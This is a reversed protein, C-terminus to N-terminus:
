VVSSYNDVQFGNETMTKTSISYKGINGGKQNQSAYHVFEASSMIWTKNVSADYFVFYFNNCLKHNIAAFPRSTTKAKVQISVVNGKKTIAMLDVGHDDAVPLYVDFGELIM